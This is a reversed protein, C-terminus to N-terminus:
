QILTNTRAMEPPTSLTAGDNTSELTSDLRAVELHTVPPSNNDSHHTSSSFAALQPQTIATAPSLRSSGGGLLDVPHRGALFMGFFFVAM